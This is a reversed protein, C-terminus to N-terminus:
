LWLGVEGLYHTAEESGIIYESFSIIIDAEESKEGQGEFTVTTDVRPESGEYWGSSSNRIGIVWATGDYYINGYTYNGDKTHVSRVYTNGDTGSFEPVGLIEADEDDPPDPTLTETVTGDDAVSATREQAHYEGAPATGSETHVWGDFYLTIDRTESSDYDNETNGRISGRPQYLGELSGDAPGEWWANGVYEHYAPDEDSDDWSEAMCTGLRASIVWRGSNWWLFGGPVAWYRKGNYTYWYATGPSLGDVQIEVGPVTAIRWDTTLMNDKWAWLSGSYWVTSGTDIFEGSPDEVYTATWSM